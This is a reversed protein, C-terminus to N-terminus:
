ESTVFPKPNLIEEKTVMGQTFEELAKAFWKSPKKGARIATIQQRSCDLQKAIEIATIQRKFMWEKLHM